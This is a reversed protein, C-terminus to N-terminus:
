DRRHLRDARWLIEGDEHLARRQIKGTATVPLADGFRVISEPLKWRALGQVEMAGLVVPVDIETGSPAHVAVAVREGTDIDAVGFAACDTLGSAAVFADEVEALSIKKGNRSVVDKLRGIVRLRGDTIEAEDGTPFWGDVRPEGGSVGVYGVFLHPGRVLLQGDAALRLEVGPRPMGEDVLRVAETETPRTGTSCPAESSGYVRVVRIGFNREAVDILERRLMTGGLAAIRIPVGVGRRRAVGLMRDLVLDPGGYATARASILLDLSREADFDSELVAGAGVLPALELAQLVGTISALPSVLFVRDEAALELLAQFNETAARLSRASHIVGKPESTTGSTFIVLRRADPDVVTRAAAPEGDLEAIAAMPIGVPLALDSTAAPPSVLVLVPNTSACAARLERAGSGVQSLVAMAGLEVTANYAVVSERENATVILVADGSRVGRRELAGRVREIRARLQAYTVAGQRDIIAVDASAIMADALSSM